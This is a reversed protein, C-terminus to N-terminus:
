LCSRRCILASITQHCVPCNPVLVAARAGDEQLIRLVEPADRDITHRQSRNTPVGVFRPALRGFRRGEAARMAPLPFWCNPDEMSTHVRDIAVHSVRLDHDRRVDGTYVEYFKAASNYPAGPGQPGKDPQYPAATTVLAVTADELATDMPTFPVEINHAWVYPNDFGLALYWDRTRQMYRVPVDHPAPMEDTM